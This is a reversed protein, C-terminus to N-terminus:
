PKAETLELRITTQQNVRLPRWSRSPVAVYVGAEDGTFRALLFRIAQESSAGVQEDVVLWEGQEVQRLITYRTPTATKKEAAM